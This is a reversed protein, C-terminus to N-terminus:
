PLLPDAPAAGREDLVDASPPLILAGGVGAGGDAACCRRPGVEYLLCSYGLDPVEVVALPALAYLHELRAARDRVARSSWRWEQVDLCYRLCAGEGRSKDAEVPDLLNFHSLPPDAALAPHENVWGCGGKAEAVGIRPLDGFPAGTLVEAFAEESGYFRGRLDLLGAGFVLLLGGLLAAGLRGLAGLGAVLAVVPLVVLAHREGLDDFTSLGLHAGVAGALLLGVLLPRQRLALLALGAFLAAGVPEGLPGYPWAWARNVCFSLAREGAGPLEGPYVLPIVAPILVLLGVVAPVLARLRPRLMGPSPWFAVLVGGAAGLVPAADMRTAVCLMSAAGLALGLALPPRHRQALEVALLLALAGMGFPLIVNYASSSWAVHAPHLLVVALAAWGARAGFLRGVAEGVGLASAVGVLAMLLVPVAPHHPLVAGLGAWLWQMSPYLVTGGRSLARVGTFLDWYEAEHGDYVHRSLAPVGWLRLALGLLGAGLSLPGLARLRLADRCGWLGLILLLLGVGAPWATEWPALVRM